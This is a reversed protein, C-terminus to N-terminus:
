RREFFDAVIGRRPRARRPAAPAAEDLFDLAKM